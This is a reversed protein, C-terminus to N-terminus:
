AVDTAFRERAVLRAPDRGVHRLQRFASIPYSGDKPPLNMKGLSEVRGLYEPGLNKELEPLKQALEDFKKKDASRLRLLVDRPRRRVYWVYLPLSTMASWRALGM